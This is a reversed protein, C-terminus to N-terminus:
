PLRREERRALTALRGGVSHPKRGLRRAIQGIRLGEAELRLLHMDEEDTFPRITVGRRTVIPGARPKAPPPTIPGDIAHTRCCWAVGSESCGIREAIHRYLWGRGRLEAITDIHDSPRAM